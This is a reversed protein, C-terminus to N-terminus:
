SFPSAFSSRVEVWHCISLRLPLSKTMEEKKITIIKKKTAFLLIVVTMTKKKENNSFFFIIAHIRVM